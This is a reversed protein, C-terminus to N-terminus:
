RPAALVYEGTYAATATVADVGSPGSGGAVQWHALTIEHWIELAAAYESPTAYRGSEDAVSPDAYFGFFFKVSPRAGADFELGSPSLTFGYQLLWPDVTVLVSDGDQLPSGNLSVLSGAPFTLELFPLLQPNPHVLRRVTPRANFVWFSTSVPVPADAQMALILLEDTALLSDDPVVVDACAVIVLALACSTAAWARRSAAAGSIVWRRSHRQAGRGTRLDTEHVEPAPSM